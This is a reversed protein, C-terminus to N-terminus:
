VRETEGKQLGLIAKTCADVSNKLAELGSLLDNKAAESVAQEPLASQAEALQHQLAENEKVLDRLILLLEERSKKKLDSKM